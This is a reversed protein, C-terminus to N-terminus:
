SRLAPAPGPEAAAEARLRRITERLDGLTPFTIAGTPCLEMCANCGLVCSYPHVVIPHSHDDDWGYVDNKCFDVCARDGICLAADVTPYWPVRERPVGKLTV